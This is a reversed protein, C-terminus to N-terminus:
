VTTQMICCLLMKEYQVSPLQVRSMTTLLEGEQLLASGQSLNQLLQLSEEFGAAMLVPQLLTLVAAAASFLAREGESLVRDWIRCAISLPLSKSFMTILWPVLYM